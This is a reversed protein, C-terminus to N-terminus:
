HFTPLNLEFVSLLQRLNNTRRLVHGSRDALVFSGDLWRTLNFYPQRTGFTFLVVRSARIPEGTLPDRKEGILTFGCWLGHRHHEEFSERVAAIDHMSLSVPLDSPLMFIEVGADSHRPERDALRNKGRSVSIDVPAAM